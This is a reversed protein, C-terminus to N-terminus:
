LRIVRPEVAALEVKPMEIPMEIPMVPPTRDAPRTARKATVIVEYIPQATAVPQVVPRKGTVVIVEIGADPVQAPAFVTNGAAFASTVTGLSVFAGLAFGVLTKM